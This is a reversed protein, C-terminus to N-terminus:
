AILSTALFSFIRSCLDFFYAVQSLSSGAAGAEVTVFLFVAHTGKLVPGAQMAWTHNSHVLLM